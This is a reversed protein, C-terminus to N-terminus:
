PCRNRASPNYVISLDINVPHLTNAVVMIGFYEAVYRIAAQVMLCAFGNCGDFQGRDSCISLATTVPSNGACLV